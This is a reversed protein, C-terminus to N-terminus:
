VGDSGSYQACNLMFICAVLNENGILKRQLDYQQTIECFSGSHIWGAKHFNHMNLLEVGDSGSHQACKLM